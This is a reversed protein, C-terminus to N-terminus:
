YIAKNYFCLQIKYIKDIGTDEDEQIEEVSKKNFYKLLEKKTNFFIKENDIYRVVWMIFVEQLISFKTLKGCYVRSRSYEKKCKKATKEAATRTGYFVPVLSVAVIYINKNKM